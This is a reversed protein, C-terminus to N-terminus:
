LRYFCDDVNERRPALDVARAEMVVGRYSLERRLEFRALRAAVEGTTVGDEGDVRWHWRCSRWPM